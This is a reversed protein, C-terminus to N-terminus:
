LVIVDCKYGRFIVDCDLDSLLWFRISGDSAGCAVVDGNSSRAVCMVRLMM